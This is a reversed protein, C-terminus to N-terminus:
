SLKMICPNPRGAPLGYLHGKKLYFKDFDGTTLYVGGGSIVFFKENVCLPIFFYHQDGPGKFVSVDSRHVAKNLSKLM